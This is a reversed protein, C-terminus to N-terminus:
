SEWPQCSFDSDALFVPANVHILSGDNSRIWWEPSNLIDAWAQWEDTHPPAMQNAYLRANWEESFRKYTLMRRGIVTEGINASPVLTGFWTNDSYLDNKIEGVVFSGFLLEM